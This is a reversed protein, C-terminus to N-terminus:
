KSRIKEKIRTSSQYKYYPTVIVRGGISEMYKRVEEIDEKNHGSSEMVVDPQLARINPLPSYTDQLVVADNYRISSAIFMREELSLIPPKKKEIIAKKSLIGAISVGDSGAIAKSSIMHSIHARHLPDITYYSYVIRGQDRKLTEGVKKASHEVGRIISVNEGLWQKPVYVIAGGGHQKVPKIIIERGVIKFEPM